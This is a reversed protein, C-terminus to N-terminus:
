GCTFGPPIAGNVLAQQLAERDNVTICAIANLGTKKKMQPFYADLYGAAALAQADNTGGPVSKVLILGDASILTGTSVCTVILSNGVTETQYIFVTAREVRELNLGPDRQAYASAGILSILIASWAAIFSRVMPTKM